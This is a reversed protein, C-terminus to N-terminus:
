NFNKQANKKANSDVAKLRTQTPDHVSKREVIGPVKVEVRRQEHNSIQILCRKDKTM